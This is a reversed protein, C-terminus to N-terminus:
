IFLFPSPVRLKPLEEMRAIKIGLSIMQTFSHNPDLSIEGDQNEDTIADELENYVDLVNESSFNEFNIDSIAMRNIAALIVYNEGYKDTVTNVKKKEIVESLYEFNM